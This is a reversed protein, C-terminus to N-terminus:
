RVLVDVSDVWLTGTDLTFYGKCEIVPSKATQGTKNGLSGWPSWRPDQGSPVLSPDRQTVFNRYSQILYHGALASPSTIWFTDGSPTMLMRVEQWQAFPLSADLTCHTFHEEHPPSPPTGASAGALPLAFVAAVVAAVMVYRKM